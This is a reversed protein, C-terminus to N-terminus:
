QIAMLRSMDDLLLQGQTIKHACTNSIYLKPMADHRKLFPCHKCASPRALRDPGTRTDLMLLWQIETQANFVM